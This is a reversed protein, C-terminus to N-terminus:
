AKRMADAIAVDRVKIPVAAVTYAATGGERTREIGIRRVSEAGGVAVLNKWFDPSRYLYEAGVIADGLTGNVIEFVRNADGRGAGNLQQQDMSGDGGFVAIGKKTDRIMDRMTMPSAGPVLTMNPPCQSVPVTPEYLGACGNSRVPMGRTTYYDTLWSASERTTQYDRLIGHQILTAATPVVGEDDWRVTAAGGPMSRDTTVTLLPSGLQYGGLMAAPDNLYSTGAGDALYGMARDIETAAAISGDLINAAAQADFVVDYRGVDVPKPRRARFAADIMDDLEARVPAARVYEWGAGAPTWEDTDRRGIVNSIWDVGSGIGFRVSTRFTTQTTSAGDTSAFTREDRQFSPLTAGNASYRRRAVTDNLACIFDIKEEFSVTFPDLGPMTWRGVAPTNAALEATRGKGRAAITAQRAADRGLRAAEELTAPGSMGAFGWYGNVLARVGLGFVDGLSPIPYNTQSFFIWAETQRACLLVDAYRAGNATAADLARTALEHPDPLAFRAPAPASWAALAPRPLLAAAAAGAGYHLLARRTFRTM